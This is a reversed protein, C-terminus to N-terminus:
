VSTREDLRVREGGSLVEGGQARAQELASMMTAVADADILPGILTREDLPNGISVTAYAATLRRQLEDVIGEQALVRRTTTCRQGATGVAGFVIARVALDLDCDDMVILANNGGLELLARGLRKGVSQAIARGMRVSGTASILPVRRDEVLATGIPDTPGIVLGVLAGFGDEELVRAVVRTMAIATLPTKHSPKWVNANGCVLSIMSNWAWVAAPFNFATIIGVTGLPHWTERISHQPRESALTLGYLQRSLGVAFDAIDICEQIEGLGEQLIKGSELSVLRGLADQHERLELGIRRVYEGRKPAPVERWRWQAEIAATMVREYDEPAAQTVSAITTGLAPNESALAEGRTEVWLGCYAGSNVDRLGLKALFDLNM